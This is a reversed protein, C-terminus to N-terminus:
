ASRTARPLEMGMGDPAPERQEKIKDMLADLKAELHQHRKGTERIIGERLEQGYRDITGEFRTKPSQKKGDPADRPVITHLYDKIKGEIKAKTCSSAMSEMDDIIAARAKLFTMEDTEKIREFSFGMLAILLNLMMIMMIGMYVVFLLRPFPGNSETFFVEKDFDGLMMGFTTFLSRQYGGFARNIDNDRCKDMTEASDNCLVPVGTVMIDEDGEMLKSADDLDHRYTVFFALSFGLMIAALLFVFFLVDRVVEFILVVSPGTARFPTAFYLMKWWLVIATIAVMMSEREDRETTDAMFHTVPLVIATMLSSLLELLNWKSRLWYAMGNFGYEHGDRVDHLIQKVEVVLNWFGLLASLSLLVAQQAGNNDYIVDPDGSDKVMSQHQTDHGLVAVFATFLGVYVFYFIAHLVVMAHAYKRWKYAIISRVLQTSFAELPINQYVLLPRLLGRMGLQCCGAYPFVRALAAREVEPRKDKAQREKWFAQFDQDLFKPSTAVVFGYDKFVREPVSLEGITVPVGQGQIADIFLSPYQRGLHLLTKLSITALLTRSLLDEHMARILMGAIEPLRREVALELASTRGSGLDDSSVVGAMETAERATPRAGQKSKFWAGVRWVNVGRSVSHGRTDDKAEEGGSGQRTFLARTKEAKRYNLLARVLAANDHRIANLLLPWGDADLGNLLAPGHQKLVAEFADIDDTQGEVSLSYYDPACDKTAYPTWVVVENAGACAVRRGDVSLALAEPNLVKGSELQKATVATRLPMVAFRAKDGAAAHLMKGNDRAEDPKGQACDKLVWTSNDSIVMQKSVADIESMDLAINPECVVPRGDRAWGAVALEADNAVNQPFVLAKHLPCKFEVRRIGKCQVLDVVIAVNSETLLAVTSGDAKFQCGSFQDRKLFRKSASRTELQRPEEAKLWVLAGTDDCLVVTDGLKQATSFVMDLVSPHAVSVPDFPLQGLRCSDVVSDSVHSADSELRRPQQKSFDWLSVSGDEMAAALRQGDQSFSFSQFAVSRVADQKLHLQSQCQFDLVHMNSSGQKIIGLKDGNLSFKLHTIAVQNWAERWDISSSLKVLKGTATEEPLTYHHMQRGTGKGTGCIAATDWLLAGSSGTMALKCEPGGFNLKYRQNRHEPPLSINLFKVGRMAHCIFGENIGEIYFGIWCKCPSLAMTGVGNGAAFDNVWDIPVRTRQIGTHLTHVVTKDEVLWIQIQVDQHITCIALHHKETSSKVFGAWLVSQSSEFKAKRAEYQPSLEQKGYICEKCRVASEGLKDENANEEDLNERRSPLPACMGEGLEVVDWVFCTGREQGRGRGVKQIFPDWAVVLRGDQSWSGLSGYLSISKGPNRWDPWMIVTGPQGGASSYLGILLGHGKDSFCIGKLTHSTGSTWAVKLRAEEKLAVGNECSAVNYVCLLATKLENDKRLLQRQSRRHQVPSTSDDHVLSRQRSSLPAKPKSTLALWSGDHSFAVRREQFDAGETGGQLIPNEVIKWQKNGLNWRVLWLSKDISAVTHSSQGVFHCAWVESERPSKLTELLKGHETDWICVAGSKHGTLLRKGDISFSSYTVEFTSDQPNGSARVQPSHSEPDTGVVGGASREGPAEVEARNSARLAFVPVGNIVQYDDFFSLPTDIFRPVGSIYDKYVEQANVIALAETLTSKFWGCFIVMVKKVWSVFLQFRNVNDDSHKDLKESRRRAIRRRGPMAPRRLRRSADGRFLCLGFLYFGGNPHNDKSVWLGPAGEVSPSDDAAVPPSAPFNSARDLRRATTASPPV